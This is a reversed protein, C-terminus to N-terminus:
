CASMGFIHVLLVNSGLLSYKTALAKIGGKGVIDHHALCLSIYTTYYNYKTQGGKHLIIWESFSTSERWTCTYRNILHMNM